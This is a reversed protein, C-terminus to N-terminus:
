WFGWQGTRIIYIALALNTVAHTLVCAALSRTRYAVLNFLAGTVLAAPWDPLNHISCFGIVSILFSRWTFTGFPVEAFNEKVLFRLLFGRWFIEEVFAVVVTMRFLRISLNLWYLWGSDAFFHPLFGDTRPPRGFFAQPSIWTAFAILAILTAFGFGDLPRLVVQSRWKWLVAACAFTQVPYIWYQPDHLWWTAYGDGVTKVVGVLMLFALFLAFPGLYARREEAM